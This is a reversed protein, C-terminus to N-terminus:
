RSSTEACTITELVPQDSDKDRSSDLLFGISLGVIRIRTPSPTALLLKEIRFKSELAPWLTRTNLHAVPPFCVCDGQSRLTRLKSPMSFNRIIPRSKQFNVQGFTAEKKAGRIFDAEASSGLRIRVRPPPPRYTTLNALILEGPQVLPIGLLTAGLGTPRADLGQAM